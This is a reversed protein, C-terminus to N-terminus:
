RRLKEVEAKEILVERGIRYSQLKGDRIWRWLTTRGRGTIKAAEGLMYYKGLVEVLSSTSM